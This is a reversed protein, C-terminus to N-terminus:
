NVNHDTKYKVFSTLNISSFLYFYLKIVMIFKFCYLYMQQLRSSCTKSQALREAMESQHRKVYEKAQQVVRLKKNLPWLQYKTQEIVENHLKVTDIDFDGIFYIVNFTKQRKQPCMSYVADLCIYKNRSFVHIYFASKDVSDM